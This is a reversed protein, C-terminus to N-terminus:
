VNAVYPAVSTTDVQLGGDAICFAAGVCLLDRQNTDRGVATEGRRKLIFLRCTFPDDVGHVTCGVDILAGEVNRNTEPIQGDTVGVTGLIRGLRRM